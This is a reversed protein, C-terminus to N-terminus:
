PITWLFYTYVKQRNNTANLISLVQWSSVRYSFLSLMYLDTKQQKVVITTCFLRFSDLSLNTSKVPCSLSYALILYLFGKQFLKFFTNMGVIRICIRWLVLTSAQFWCCCWVFRYYCWLRRSFGSFAIEELIILSVITSLSPRSLKAHVM